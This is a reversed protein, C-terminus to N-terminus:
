ATHRSTGLNRVLIYPTRTPIDVEWWYIDYADKGLAVVNRLLNPLTDAIRFKKAAGVIEGGRVIFAADRSITSFIGEVYNQLRTYWNNTVVLGEGMEELLEEFSYDGPDVSLAWVKPFVLGANGTSKAGMKAATKTNHLLTKLFGGNIIPKNYTPVGEDDFSTSGPLVAERPVDKLTIKESAVADGPKKGVFISQGLLVASGTAMWAVYNLLNGAVMPSLLINYKGPSVSVQNRSHYALNSAKEAMEEIKKVNLTRSGHAWQGSGEGAFARVYAQVETADESLEAGASSALAKVRYTLQLMGAFSDINIRQAAEAMAEAVRHPDSIAEVIKSDVLRPLPEVKSPKPLPSYLISAPMREGVASLQMLIKEVDEATKAPFSAGMIRKNKSVYVLVQKDRWSQVVSPESNAFKVMTSERYVALVAAEDFGAEVARKSVKNAISLLEEKM